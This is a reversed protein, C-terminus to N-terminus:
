LEVYRIASFKQAFKECRGYTVLERALVIEGRLSKM